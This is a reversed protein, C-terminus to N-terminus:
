RYESLTGTMAAGLNTLEPMMHFKSEDRVLRMRSWSSLFHHCYVLAHYSMIYRKHVDPESFERTTKDVMKAHMGMSLIVHLIRLERAWSVQLADRNIIPEGNETWKKYLIDGEVAGRNIANEHETANCFALGFARMCDEPSTLNRKVWKDHVMSIAFQIDDEPHISRPNEEFANLMTHFKAIDAVSTSDPQHECSAASSRRFPTDSHFPVLATAPAPMSSTIAGSATGSPGSSFMSSSTLIVATLPTTGFDHAFAHHTLMIGRM